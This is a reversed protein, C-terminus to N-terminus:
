TVENWTRGYDASWWETLGTEGDKQATLMWRDQNDKVDCIDFGVDTFVIDSGANDKFTFQSSLATDGVGRFKGRIKGPGSSGSNYKFSAFLTDGNMNSACRPQTGDTFISMETGWDIGDTDSIKAKTGVGTRNYIVVLRKQNPDELVCPRSCDGTTTVQSEGEWFGIPIGNWQRKLYVDSDKIYARYTEGQPAGLNAPEIGEENSECQPYHFLREEASYTCYTQDICPVCDPDVPEDGFVYSDTFWAETHNVTHDVRAFDEVYSIPDSNGDTIVSTMVTPCPPSIPLRNGSSDWHFIACCCIAGDFNRFRFLEPVDKVIARIKSRKRTWEADYTWPTYTVTYTPPGPESSVFECDVSAGSVKDYIATDNREASLSVANSDGITCTPLEEVCDCDSSCNHGVPDPLSHVFQECLEAEWASGNWFEWGGSTSLTDKRINTFDETQTGNPNHIAIGALPCDGYAWSGGGVQNNILGFLAPNDYGSDLDPYGSGIFFPVRPTSYWESCASEPDYVNGSNTLPGAITFVLVDNIYLRLDETDLTWNSGCTSTLEVDDIELRCEIGTDGFGGLLGSTYNSGFPTRLVIRHQVVDATNSNNRTSIHEITLRIGTIQDFFGGGTEITLRSLPVHFTAGAFVVAPGSHTFTPVSSNLFWRYKRAAINPTIM